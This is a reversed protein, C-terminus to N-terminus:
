IVFPNLEPFLKFLFTVIYRYPSCLLISPPKISDLSVWIYEQITMQMKNTGRVQKLDLETIDEHLFVVLFLNTVLPSM